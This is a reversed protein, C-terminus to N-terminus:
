QAVITFTLTFEDNITKDGLNEFFKGSGYKVDYETRDITVSGTAVAKGDVENVEATFSVPKTIGKITLDGVLEEGENNFNLTATPFEAVNFFDETSLHGVLDANMKEDEIDEVTISAMDVVANGSVLVGNEVSFSGDQIAIKGFHEGTVKKGLWEITSAENDVAFNGSIGEEVVVVEEEVVPEPSSTCSSFSFAALLALAALSLTIKKM